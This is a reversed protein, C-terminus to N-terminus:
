SAYKSREKQFELLIKERLELPIEVGNPIESVLKALEKAFSKPYYRVGRVYFIAQPFIVKEEYRRITMTSKGLIDAFGSLTVASVLKGKVNLTTEVSRKRKM